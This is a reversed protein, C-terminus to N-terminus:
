FHIINDYNENDLKNDNEHDTLYIYAESIKKFKEEADQKNNPNKDPHYKLALLKYQKKIEIISPSSNLNLITCADNYNM